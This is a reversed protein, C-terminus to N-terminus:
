PSGNQGNTTAPATVLPARTRRELPQRRTGRALDPTRSPKRTTASVHSSAAANATSGTGRRPRSGARRVREVRVELAHGPERRRARAHDRVVVREVAREPDPTLERLPEAAHPDDHERDGHKRPKADAAALEHLGLQGPGLDGREALADSRGCPLQPEEVDRQRRELHQQEGREPHDADVVHHRRVLREGVRERRHRGAAERRPGVRGGRKEASACHIRTSNM